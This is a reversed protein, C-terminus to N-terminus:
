DPLHSYTPDDLRAILNELAQEDAQKAIPDLNLRIQPEFDRVINRIGRTVNGAGYARLLDLVAPTLRVNTMRTGSRDWRRKRNQDRRRRKKVRLGGMRAIERRREPTLKAARAKGGLSAYKGIHSQSM